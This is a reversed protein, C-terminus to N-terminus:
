VRDGAVMSQCQSPVDRRRDNNLSVALVLLWATRTSVLRDDLIMVRLCELGDPAHLRVHGRARLLIRRIERVIYGIRCQQGVGLSRDARHHKGFERLINGTRLIQEGAVQDLEASVGQV